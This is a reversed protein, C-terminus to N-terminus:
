HFVLYEVNHGHLLLIVTEVRKAFEAIEHGLVAMQANGANLFDFVSSFHPM